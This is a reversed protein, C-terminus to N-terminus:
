EMRMGLAHARAHADYRECLSFFTILDFSQSSSALRKDSFLKSSANPATTDTSARARALPTIAFVEVLATEVLRTVSDRSRIQALPANWCRAILVVAVWIVSADSTSRLMGLLLTFAPLRPPWSSKRSACVLIAARMLAFLVSALLETTTLSAPANM